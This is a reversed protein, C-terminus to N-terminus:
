VKKANPKSRALKKKAKILAELRKLKEEESLRSNNIQRIEEKTDVFLELFYDKEKIFYKERFRVLIKDLLDKRSIKLSKSSEKLELIMQSLAKNGAGLAQIRKEKQETDLM